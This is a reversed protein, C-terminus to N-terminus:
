KKFQVSLSAYFTRGPSLTAYNVGFPRRDVFNFINEIGFGPTLTFNRFDKLKHTSSFDWQSYARSDGDLYYRRSQWRGNLSFSSDFIGWKKNWSTNFTGTHKSIKELPTQTDNDYTDTYSYGVSTTLGYGFYANVSADIGKAHAKSSNQYQYVATFSSYEDPVPKVSHLTIINRLQNYYASLAVSLFDRNYEASINYYNSSEPRLDKNSITITNKTTSEINCYLKKLDPAKFGSAYTARFNFDNLSYLLALKPTFRSKFTEHYVYRFGPVIQLKRNLLKIEDQGYVASTFVERAGTGLDNQSDLYDVQYQTGATIRHHSDLTYVTKLNTDSYRQNRGIVQDGIAYSSSKQTYVKYYKFNDTYYDLTVVGKNDIMYKAGTGFSYDNYKMDYSYSKSSRIFKKDFISGQVYVQFNNDPAFTLKQSYIDSFYRNQAKKDTDVTDGKSNIEKPSLQWGDTQVRQYSSTYNFKGFNIEANINQNFQNFRAYRTYSDAYIKEKHKDTIINIVGGIADSGYLSSAAGKEIEIRKVNSMNIRALDTNGSVDGALKKGDVLVLIYNNGLGNLQMYSGMINPTFSLSPSLAQIANEFTSANTRRIEKQTYVDVAVPTYKLHNRTGTGTVVIENLKLPSRELTFLLNTSAENLTQAAPYFNKAKAKVQRKGSPFEYLTFEGNKNTTTALNTHEIWVDAGAVPQNDEDVVKGKCVNQAFATHAALLIMPLLVVRRLNM